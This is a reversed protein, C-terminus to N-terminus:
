ILCHPLPCLFGATKGSFVAPFTDLIRRRPDPSHSQLIGTIGASLGGSHPKKGDARSATRERRAPEPCSRDPACPLRVGGAPQAPFRFICYSLNLEDTYYYQVGEELTQEMRVAIQAYDFDETMKRRLGFDIEMIGTYSSDLLLVQIGQHRCSEVFLELLNMFM